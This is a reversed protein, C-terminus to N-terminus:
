LCLVVVFFSNDYCQGRGFMGMGAGRDWPGGSSGLMGPQSGTPSEDAGPTKPTASTLIASGITTEQPMPRDPDRIYSNFFEAQLYLTCYYSVRGM